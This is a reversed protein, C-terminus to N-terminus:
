AVGFYYAYGFYFSYNAAFTRMIILEQFTLKPVSFRLLVSVPYDYCFGGTKDIIFILYFECIEISFRAAM